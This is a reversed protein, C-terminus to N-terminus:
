AVGSVRYAARAHLLTAGIVGLVVSRECFLTHLQSPRRNGRRELAPVRTTVLLADTVSSRPGRRRASTETTGKKAAQRSAQLAVASRPGCSFALRCSEVFIRNALAATRIVLM